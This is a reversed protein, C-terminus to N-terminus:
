AATTAPRRLWVLGVTGLIAIAALGAGGGIVISVLRDPVLSSHVWSAGFLFAGTGVKDSDWGTAQVVDTGADLKPLVFTRSFRGDGDAPFDGIKVPAGGRYYIVLQVKEGPNLGAVTFTIRDGAHFLTRPMLTSTLTGAAPHKPIAPGSGPAAPLALTPLQDAVDTSGSTSRSTDSSPATAEAPSSASPSPSPSDTSGDGPITVSVPSADAWASGAAVWSAAVGSLALSVVLVATRPGPRARV